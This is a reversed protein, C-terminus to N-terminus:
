RAGRMSGNRGDWQEKEISLSAGVQDYSRGFPNHAEIFQWISLVPTVCFDYM